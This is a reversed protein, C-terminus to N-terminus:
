QLLSTLFATIQHWGRIGACRGILQVDALLEQVLGRPQCIKAFRKFEELSEEYKHQGFLAVGLNALTYYQLTEKGLCRRCLSEALLFSDAAGNPQDNLLYAMGLGNRIWFLSARLSRNRKRVELAQTFAEIAERAKGLRIYTKGLGNWPNIYEPSLDTAQKYAEIAKDSQELVLYTAGYADYVTAKLYTESIKDVEIESLIELAKEPNGQARLLLLSLKVYAPIYSRDSRIAAKFLQEAEEFEGRSSLVSGEVTLIRAQKRPHFLATNVYHDVRELGRIAEKSTGKSIELARKFYLKAEEPRLLNLLTNGIACRINASDPLWNLAEKLVSLSDQQIQRKRSSSSLRQGLLFLANGIEKEVTQDKQGERTYLKTYLQVAEDIQRRAPEFAGKKIAAEATTLYALIRQKGELFELIQEKAAELSAEGSWESLNSLKEILEKNRPPLSNYFLEDEKVFSLLRRHFGESGYRMAMVYENVIRKTVDDYRRLWLCHNVWDLLWEQWQVDRYKERESRDHGYQAKLEGERESLRTECIDKAAENLEILRGQQIAAQHLAKRLFFRVDSHMEGSTLLFSYQRRLYERTDYFDDSSNILKAKFWIDRLFKHRRASIGASSETIVSQRIIAFTYICDRDRDKQRELCYKLFRQTVLPLVHREALPEKIDGFIQMIDHKDRILEAIGRVALPIGRTVFLIRSVLPPAIPQNPVEKSLFDNIDNETFKDLTKSYYALPRAYSRVCDRHRIEEEEPIRGAIVFIFRRGVEPNGLCYRYLGGRIWDGAFHWVAEYTDFMLIIPRNRAIQCLDSVFAESYKIQRERPDYFSYDSESLNARLYHEFQEQSDGRFDSRLANVRELITSRTTEVDRFCPFDLQYKGQLWDKMLQMMKVTGSQSNIGTLDWDVYLWFLQEQHAECIQAYEGLLTSKGMGGEGCIFFVQAWDTESTVGLVGKLARQFENKERERGVFVETRPPSISPPIAKLPKPKTLRRLVDDLTARVDAPLTHEVRAGDGIAVGTAEAIIVNYVIAGAQTELRQLRQVITELTFGQQQLLAQITLMRGLNVRNFLPSNPRTAEAVLTESLSRHFATLARDFDIPLTARDFDLADFAARLAPLDPLDAGALAVDLLTQAVGPATVFQRLITEVLAQHDRDPGACVSDLMAQFGSQYCQRLSRKETDGFALTRLRDAGARLLDHALNVALNTLFDNLM